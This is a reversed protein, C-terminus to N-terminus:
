LEALTVSEAVKKATMHPIEGVVTIRYPHNDLLLARSYAITAGKQARGEASENADGVGEFFVSFVTLGDTYTLMDTDGFHHGAATATFGGPLWNVAWRTQSPLQSPAANADLPKSHGAHYSNEGSQFYVMPIEEGMSIQVFQFRELVEDKTGILSSRLLLGTESDLALVYGFRYEDVPTVAIEIVDRGAVRGEGTILFQYYRNVAAQGQTLTQQQQYIRILQHGPHMCSLSHGRRVIERPEGDLYELREYEEGGFVTHAIRFSEMSEGQQYTFIGRYTLERFSHSMRDLLAAASQESDASVPLSVSFFAVLASVIATSAWRSSLM